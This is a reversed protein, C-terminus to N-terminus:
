RFRQVAERCLNWSTLKLGNLSLPTDSPFRLEGVVPYPTDADQWIEVRWLVGAVSFFEGQYRLQKEM